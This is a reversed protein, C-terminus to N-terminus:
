RWAWWPVHGEFLAWFAMEAQVFLRHGSDARREARRKAKATVREVREADRYDYRSCM